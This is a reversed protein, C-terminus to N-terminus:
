LRLYQLLDRRYHLFDGERNVMKYEELTLAIGRARRVKYGAIESLVDNVYHLHSLVRRKPMPEFSANVVDMM